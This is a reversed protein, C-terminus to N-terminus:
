LPWSLSTTIQGRPLIYRSSLLTGCIVGLDAPLDAVEHDSKAAIHMDERPWV